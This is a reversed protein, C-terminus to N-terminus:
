IVVFSLASTSVYEDVIIYSYRMADNSEPVLQKVSKHRELFQQFEDDTIVFREANRLTDDGANEGDIILCQFVQEYFHVM